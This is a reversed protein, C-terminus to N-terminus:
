NKILTYNGSREDKMIKYDDTLELIWGDGSIKKSEIKIPNSISIKDWKPSMLAGNEVTLIGWVDTVRIAPYVTGKDEVPMINRPDFSVNMKVFQIEFHPQDIFKLKYEAIRKKTQEERESEEKIISQANYQGSIKEVAKKLDASIKINFAQIFYNTLDTKASIKKNWDKDKNYLLYGYVSTTYYAFSRVFTPNKLFGDIGNLFYSRTQKKNRGSLILGTFEAIGENLELLNETGASNKYLTNRYKRFTMANVLHEQLEKESSSGIANKLAELELRLYIRGEKQDLHNNEDNNLTFGLAPQIRHFSEHGLLNVRDSKDNPLPLMIMAWRKGNWDIATNAINIKEPLIGTYVNGDSKLIGAEDPENAFLVRTKPDILITPGYIEKDWLKTNKESTIKIEDFFVSISDRSISQTQGKIGQVFLFFLSILITQRM